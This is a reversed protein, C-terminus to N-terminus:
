FTFKTFIFWYYHEKKTNCVYTCFYSPWYFCICNYFVYLNLDVDVRRPRQKMVMRASMLEIAM